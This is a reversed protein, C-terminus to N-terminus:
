NDADDVESYEDSFTESDLLVLLRNQIDKASEATMESELSIVQSLSTALFDVLKDSYGASSLSESLAISARKSIYQYNIRVETM